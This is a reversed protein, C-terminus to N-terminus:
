RTFRDILSQITHLYTERQDSQPPYKNLEKRITETLQTYDGQALNLVQSLLGTIVINQLNIKDQLTDIQNELFQIKEYEADNLM